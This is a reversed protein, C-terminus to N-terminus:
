VRSRIRYEIANFLQGTDLLAGGVRRGGQPRTGSRWKSRKVYKESLPTFPGEIMKNQIGDVAAQGAKHLQNQAVRRKGDLAAEGSAKIHSIWRIRSEQLGPIIFPRAPLRGDDTGNELINALEANTLNSGIRRPGEFVGVYLGIDRLGKVRSIVQSTRDKDEITIRM